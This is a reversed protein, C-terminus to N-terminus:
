ATQGRDLPAGGPVEPAEEKRRAHEYFATSLATGATLISFVVVGPLMFAGLHSVYGNFFFFDFVGFIAPMTWLGSIPDFDAEVVDDDDFPSICAEHSQPEEGSRSPGGSRVAREFGSETLELRETIFGDSRLSAIKGDVVERAVGTLKAIEEPAKREHLLVL